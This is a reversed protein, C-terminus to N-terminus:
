SFYKILFLFVVWIIALVPGIIGISFGGLRFDPQKLLGTSFAIANPPTSVPLFVACSASIGIVMALAIPDVGPLISAVPILITATATNSMVNSLIVTAFAFVFMFAYENFTFRSLKTVFFAALGSEQIAIGLSLGGAVLMLTDWPLQRVDDGTVISVMPLLIIPIGSVAAAPIGHWRGTLWLLVTVVLVVQVFNKQFKDEPSTLQNKQIFSLDVKQDKINYKKSLILWFIFILVVAIPVGLVMWELFGITTHNSSRRVLSNIADVAIANPPSGIITGMGGIAAAAPIGILMAKSLQNEKGMQKVFPMISAIMMATTATNSMVMSAVATTGMIALLVYKAKNGAKSMSLKFLDRDLGTKKTSRSFFLWGGNAM